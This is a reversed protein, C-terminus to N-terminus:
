GMEEICRLIYEMNGLIWTEIEEKINKHLRVNEEWAKKGLIFKGVNTKHLFIKVYENDHTGSQQRSFVHISYTNRIRHIAKAIIRAPIDGQLTAFKM